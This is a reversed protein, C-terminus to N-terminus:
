GGWGWWDSVDIFADGEHDGQIMLELVVSELPGGRQVIQVKTGDVIVEWFLNKKVEEIYDTHKLIFNQSM